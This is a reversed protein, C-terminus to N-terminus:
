ADEPSTLHSIRSTLLELDEPRWNLWIATLLGEPDTALEPMLAVAEAMEAEARARRGLGDLALARYLPGFVQGPSSIRSAAVLAGEDDGALLREIAPVTHVYPPLAPNLEFARDVARAASTWHGSAALVTASTALLIPHHPSLRMAEDAQRVALGWDKRLMSTTALAMHPHGFTPDLQIAERAVHESEELLDDRREDATSAAVALMSSRMALLVPSRAGREQAADLASLATTASEPSGLELYACFTLVAARTATPDSPPHHVHHRLVTGSYDGVRAAVRVAWEEDSPLLEPTALDAEDSSSWLLEGTGRHVLTAPGHRGEHGVLSNLVYETGQNGATSGAAEAPVVVHIGPFRRLAAGVLHCPRPEQGSAGPGGVPTCTVLVRPGVADLSLPHRRLFRPAYHGVPLVIRVADESGPGDYYAALLKRLRTAHVRVLASERADAESPLGLAYRGVRRESLEGGHGALTEEVVYVLFDSARESAQFRPHSLVRRLAERTEAASPEVGSATRTHSDPGTM